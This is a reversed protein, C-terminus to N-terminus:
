HLCTQQEAVIALSPVTRDRGARKAAYLARDAVALLHASDTTSDDMQACGFSATVSLNYPALQHSAFCERIREAIHVADHLTANPLLVCFEEGGLRAFTDVPRLLDKAIQTFLKLVSDGAAHGHTDNVRKFHDIDIAILALPHGNQRARTCEREAVTFFHARNCAGTLHDKRLLDTIQGAEAHRRSVDRLVMTYGMVTRGGEHELDSKVAILRQSWYLEGSRKRQWGESLHWGDRSASAIQEGILVATSGPDAGDLCDPTQGLLDEATYGTQRTTSSNIHEVRGEADMSLVAFDNIDDLLSAFWVEAQKLRRERATEASIDAVTVALRSNDLKVLTCALVQASFDNERTGPHVVVRHGECIKGQRKPYMEALNRLEPAWREMTSFFNTMLGGEALPLLIQMALPNMMYIEGDAGIELLGIPCAYLFRILNANEEGVDGDTWEAIQNNGPTM